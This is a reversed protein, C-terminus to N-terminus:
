VRTVGVRQERHPPIVREEGVGVQGDFLGVDGVALVCDDFGHEGIEDVSWQGVDRRPAEAGVRGPHQAGRDGVVQQAGGADEGAAL